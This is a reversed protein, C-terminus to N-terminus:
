CFIVIRQPCPKLLFYSILDRNFKKVKGQIRFCVFGIKYFSNIVTFGPLVAAAEQTQETDGDGNRDRPIM